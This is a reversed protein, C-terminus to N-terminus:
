RCHNSIGINSLYWIFLSRSKRTDYALITFIATNIYALAFFNHLFFELSELQIMGLNAWSSGTKASSIIYMKRWHFDHNIRNIILSVSGFYFVTTREHQTSTLFYQNYYHNSVSPFDIREKCGIFHAIPVEFVDIQFEYNVFYHSSEICRILRHFTVTSIPMTSSSINIYAHRVDM